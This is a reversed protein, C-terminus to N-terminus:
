CDPQCVAAAGTEIDMVAVCWREGFSNAVGVIRRGDPSWAPQQFFGRRPPTRLTRRTAIEAISFGRISLCLLRDGDPAWCAWPYEGAAGLTVADAGDARALILEGQAGHRNNDFAETRPIRRWLLRAGDPSWRPLGENYGPTRTLNTRDSGDPRCVFIDPDGAESRAAYAIWGLDCVERRLADMPPEEAATAALGALLACGVIAPAGSMHGNWM